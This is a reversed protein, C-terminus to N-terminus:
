GIVGRLSANLILNWRRVIRGKGALAPDLKSFGSSMKERCVNLVGAANIKSIEILYGLRKYITRNGFKSLYDILLEDEREKSDFYEKVMLMVNRIGGGSKPDNLLDVITRSPDSVMVKIQGRWVPKLGFYKEKMIFKIIYNTGQIVKKAADIRKTSFVIVDNFIQETLGWHECASWGGIYCPGFVAQAVVWPDERGADPRMGGLPVITYLGKKVRILWNRKVWFDILNKARLKKVGLINAVFDINFPGKAAKYLVNLLERNKGSIGGLKDYVDNKLM